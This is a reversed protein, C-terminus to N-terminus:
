DLQLPLSISEVEWHFSSYPCMSFPVSVSLSPFNPWNQLHQTVYSKFKSSQPELDTIELATWPVGDSWHHGPSKPGDGGSERRDSPLHQSM